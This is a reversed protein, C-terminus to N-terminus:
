LVDARNERSREDALSEARQADIWSELDALAYRVMRPGIRVFPPGGGRSRWREMTKPAAGIMAAARSESVLLPDTTIPDAPM